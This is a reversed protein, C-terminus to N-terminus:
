HASVSLFLDGISLGGSQWKESRRRPLELFIRHILLWSELRERSVVIWCNSPEKDSNAVALEGSLGDLEV